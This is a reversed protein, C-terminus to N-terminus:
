GESIVLYMQAQTESYFSSIDQYSGSGNKTRPKLRLQFFLCLGSSWAEELAKLVNKLRVIASFTVKNTILHSAVFLAVLKFCQSRRATFVQVTSNASFKESRILTM